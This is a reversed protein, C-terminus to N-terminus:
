GRLVQLLPIHFLMAIMSLRKGICGYREGTPYNNWFFEWLFEGSCLYTNLVNIGEERVIRLMKFLTPRHVLHSSPLIMWNEVTAITFMILILIAILAM